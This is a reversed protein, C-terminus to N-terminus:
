EEMFRKLVLEMVRENRVLYAISGFILGGLMGIWVRAVDPYDSVFFGVFSFLVIAIGMYSTGSLYRLVTEMHDIKKLRKIVQSNRMTFLMNRQTASFGALVIGFTMASALIPALIPGLDVLYALLLTVGFGVIGFIWPGHRELFNIMM